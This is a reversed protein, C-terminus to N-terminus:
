QKIVGKRILFDKDSEGPRPKAISEIQAKIIEKIPKKAMYIM